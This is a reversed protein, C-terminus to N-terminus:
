HNAPQKILLLMVPKSLHGHTARRRALLSGPTQLLKRLLKTLTLLVPAALNRAMDLTNADISGFGEGQYYKAMGGAQQKQLQQVLNNVVDNQVDYKGWKTTTTPATNIINALGANQSEVNDGFVDPEFQQNFYDVM